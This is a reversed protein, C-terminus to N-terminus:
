KRFDLNFSMVFLFKECKYVLCVEFCKSLLSSLTIPRNSEINNLTIPRNSEINNLTIPRYSEINNTDLSHYKLIRNINKEAFSEPVYGHQIVM